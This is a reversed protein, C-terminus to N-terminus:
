DRRSLAAGLLFAGVGIVLLTGPGITSTPVPYPERLVIPRAPEQQMPVLASQDVQGDYARRQCVPCVHVPVLRGDRVERGAYRMWTLRHGMGCQPAELRPSM